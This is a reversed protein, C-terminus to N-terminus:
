AIFSILLHFEDYLVVVKALTIFEKAQEVNYKEALQNFTPALQKCHGCRIAVIFITVVNIVLAARVHSIFSFYFYFTTM